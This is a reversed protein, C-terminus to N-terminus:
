EKGDKINKRWFYNRTAEKVEAVSIPMYSNRLNIHEGGDISIRITALGHLIPDQRMNGIDWKVTHGRMQFKGEEKYPM